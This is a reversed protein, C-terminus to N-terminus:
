HYVSKSKYLVLNGVLTMSQCSGANKYSLIDLMASMARQLCYEHSDSGHWLPVPGATSKPNMWAIFIVKLLELACSKQNTSLSMGDFKFQDLQVELYDMLKSFPLLWFVTNGVEIKQTSIMYSHELALMLILWMPFSGQLSFRSISDWCVHLNMDMYHRNQDEQIVVVNTSVDKSNLNKLRTSLSSHISNMVQNTLTTSKPTEKQTM